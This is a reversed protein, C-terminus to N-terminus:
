NASSSFFYEYRNLLIVEKKAFVIEELYSVLIEFSKKHIEGNKHWVSASKETPIDKGAYRGMQNVKGEAEASCKIRCYAHYKVEKASFNVGTIRALLKSDEM